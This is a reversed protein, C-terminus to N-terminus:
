ATLQRKRVAQRLQARPRSMFPFHKRRRKVVRPETRGPRDGNLRLKLEARHYVADALWRVADVFSIRSVPVGQRNAAERIVSRVLNYVLAYILLEKQVGEVTQCRLVDM